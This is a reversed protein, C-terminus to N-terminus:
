FRAFFDPVIQTKFHEIEEATARHMVESTSQTVSDTNRLMRTPVHLFTRSRIVAATPPDYVTESGRVRVNLRLNGM